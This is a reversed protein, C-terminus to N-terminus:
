GTNNDDALRVVAECSWRRSLSMGSSASSAERISTFLM